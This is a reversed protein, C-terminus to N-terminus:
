TCPFSYSQLLIGASERLSTAVVGRTTPARSHTDLCELVNRSGSYAATPHAPMGRTGRGPARPGRGGSDTSPATEISQGGSGLRERPLPVAPSLSEPCRPSGTGISVWKGGPLVVRQGCADLDWVPDRSLLEKTSLARQEAHLSPSTFRALRAPGRM